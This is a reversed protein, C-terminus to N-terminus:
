VSVNHSGGYLADINSQFNPNTYADLISETLFPNIAHRDKLLIYWISLDINLHLFILNWVKSLQYGDVLFLKAVM